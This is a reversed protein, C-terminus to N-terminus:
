SSFVIHDIKKRVAEQPISEIIESVFAHILMKRAEEESIGRSKLYFLAKQDLQGTSSGHTCEVDDAYIELNPKAFVQAGESLLLNKNIQRAQTGKTGKAVIIKGDFVGQAKEEVVAKFFQDSVCNSVNHEVLTHFDIVQSGKPKLLGKLFCQAHGQTFPVNVDQRSFRGGIGFLFSRVESKLGQEFYLDSIHFANKGELQFRYHECQSQEQTVIQSVVSNFYHANEEGGFSELITVKSAKGIIFLNRLYHASNSNTSFYIFHLPKKIKQGERVYLCAGNSFLATNLSTFANKKSHLKKNVYNRAIHPHCKIFEQLNGLFVQSPLDEIKSLDKSFLGNIFVVRYCDLGEFIFPEINEKGDGFIALDGRIRESDEHHRPKFSSELFSSIDTYKWEEVKKNPFGQKQFQEIASDKLEKLWPSVSGNLSQKLSKYQSVYDQVTHLTM